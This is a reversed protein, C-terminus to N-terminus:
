NEEREKERENKPTLNGKVFFHGMTRPKCIGGGGNWGEDGGGWGGGSDAAEIM